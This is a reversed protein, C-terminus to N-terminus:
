VNASLMEIFFTRPRTVKNQELFNNEKGGQSIKRHKAVSEKVNLSGVCAIKNERGM